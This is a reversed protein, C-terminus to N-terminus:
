IEIKVNIQKDTVSLLHHSAGHFGRRGIVRVKPHDTVWVKVGGKVFANSRICDQTPFGYKERLYAPDVDAYDSKRMEEIFEKLFPKAKKWSKRKCAWNTGSIKEKQSVGDGEGPSDGAKVVGGYKKLMESIVEFYDKSVIVDNELFIGINHNKFVHQVGKYVNIPIGVNNPQEVIEKNPLKSENFLATSTRIQMRAARLKGSIPNRGGDQFLYFHIDDKGKANELSNLLKVLYSFRSLSFIGCGINPM